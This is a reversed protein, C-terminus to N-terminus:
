SWRVLCSAKRRQPAQEFGHTSLLTCWAYPLRRCAFNVAPLGCDPFLLHDLSGSHRKGVYWATHVEKVRPSGTKCKPRLDSVHISIPRRILALRLQLIELVAKGEFTQGFLLMPCSPDSPSCLDRCALTQFPAAFVHPLHPSIRDNIRSVDIRRNAFRMSRCIPKYTDPRLM